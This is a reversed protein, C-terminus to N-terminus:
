AVPEHRPLFLLVLSVLAFIASLGGLLSITRFQVIQAIGAVVYLLAILGIFRRAWLAGRYLFCSAVIGALLLLDVFFSLYFLPSSLAVSHSFIFHSLQLM